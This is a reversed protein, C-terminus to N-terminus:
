VALNELVKQPEIEEKMFDGALGPHPHNRSVQQSSDPALFLGSM